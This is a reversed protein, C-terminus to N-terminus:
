SKGQDRRQIIQEVTIRLIEIPVPKHLMSLAGLELAAAEIAATPNGTMLIAPTKLGAQRLHSLIEIGTLFPMHVDMVSLDFRSALLLRLAESGSCATRIEVGPAQLSSVVAQRCDEQDDAILIRFM